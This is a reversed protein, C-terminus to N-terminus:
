TFHKQMLVNCPILLGYVHQLFAAAICPGWVRCGRTGSSQPPEAAPQETGPNHRPPPLPPLQKFKKRLRGFQHRSCNNRDDAQFHQLLEFPCSFYAYKCCYFVYFASFSNNLAFCLWLWVSLNSKLNEKWLHYARSNFSIIGGRVKLFM